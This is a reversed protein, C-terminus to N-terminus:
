WPGGGGGKVTPLLTATLLQTATLALGRRLSPLVPFHAEPADATAQDARAGARGNDDASRRLCSCGRALATRRPGPIGCHDDHGRGPPVATKTSGAQTSLTRQEEPRPKPSFFVSARHDPGEPQGSWSGLSTRSLSQCCPGDARVVAMCAILRCCVLVAASLQGLDVRGVPLTTLRAVHVDIRFRTCTYMCSTSKTIIWSGCSMRRSPCSSTGQVMRVHSAHAVWTQVRSM